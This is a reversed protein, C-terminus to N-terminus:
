ATFIENTMGNRSPSGEYVFGVLSSLPGSGASRAATISFTLCATTSTTQWHISPRYLQTFRVRSGKISEIPRAIIYPSSVQLIMEQTMKASMRGPYPWVALSAPSGVFRM